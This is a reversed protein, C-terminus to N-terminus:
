RALDFIILITARANGSWPAQILISGKVDAATNAPDLVAVASQVTDTTNYMTKVSAGTGVVPNGDMFMSGGNVSASDLRIHVRELMRNYVSTAPPASLAFDMWLRPHEGATDVAVYARDVTYSWDPIAFTDGPTVTVRLSRASLYNTMRTDIRPTDITLPSTCGCWLACIMIIALYQM